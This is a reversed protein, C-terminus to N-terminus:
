INLIIRRIRDGQGKLKRNTKLKKAIGTMGLRSELEASTSGRGLAVSTEGTLERCLYIAVDRPIRNKVAAGNLFVKQKGLFCRRM